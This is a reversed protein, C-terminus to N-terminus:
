RQPSDTIADTGSTPTTRRPFVDAPYFREQGRVRVFDRSYRSGAIYTHFWPHLILTKGYLVQDEPKLGAIKSMAYVTFISGDSLQASEPYGIGKPLSDDRIIKQNEVDWTRGEDHSMCARIGCPHRRHAYTVLMDGSDLTILHPPFGWFNVQQPASWTQGGDDSFCQCMNHRGAFHPRSMALIRGSPMRLLCTEGIGVGQETDYFLPIFQWSQGEDTSRTIWVRRGPDTRNLLGYVAGLLTGDPLVLGRSHHWGCVWAFHPANELPRATWTDGSDGSSFCVIEPLTAVLGEFADHLFYGAAELEPRKEARYLPHLMQGTERYLHSLGEQELHERLEEGEYIRNGIYVLAGGATRVGPPPMQDESPEWSVGGDSSQLETTRPEQVYFDDQLGADSSSYARVILRGDDALHLNAGNSSHGALDLITVDLKWPGKMM